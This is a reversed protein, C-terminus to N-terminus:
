LDFTFFPFIQINSMDFIICPYQIEPIRSSCDLVLLLKQIYLKQLTLLYTVISDYAIQKLNVSTVKSFM